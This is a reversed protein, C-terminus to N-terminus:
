SFLNSFSADTLNPCLLRLVKIFLDLEQYRGPLMAFFFLHQVSPRVSVRSDFESNVGRTEFSGVNGKSPKYHQSTVALRSSSVDGLRCVPNDKSILNNEDRRDYLTLSYALSFWNDIDPLLNM